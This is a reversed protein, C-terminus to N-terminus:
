SLPIPRVESTMKSLKKDAAEAKLGLARRRRKLEDLAEEKTRISKLYSRM